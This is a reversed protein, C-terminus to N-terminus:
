AARPFTPLNPHSRGHDRFYGSHRVWVSPRGLGRGRHEEGPIRETEHQNRKDGSDNQYLRLLGRRRTRLALPLICGVDWTVTNGSNSRALLVDEAKKMATLMEVCSGLIYRCGTHSLKKSSVYHCLALNEADLQLFFEGTQVFGWEVGIQPSLDVFINRLLRPAHPHVEALHQQVLVAQIRRALLIL